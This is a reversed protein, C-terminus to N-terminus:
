KKLDNRLNRSWIQLSTGPKSQNSKQRKLWEVLFIRCFPFPGSFYSSVSFCSGTRYLSKHTKGLKWTFITAPSPSVFNHSISQLIKWLLAVDVPHLSFSVRAQQRTAIHKKETSKETSLGLQFLKAVTAAEHGSTFSVNGTAFFSMSPVM